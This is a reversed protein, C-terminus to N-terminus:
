PGRSKEFLTVSTGQETLMRAASLGALGSGVVAVHRIDPSQRKQNIM